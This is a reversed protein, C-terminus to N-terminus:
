IIRYMNIYLIYPYVYLSGWRTPEPVSAARWRRSCSPTPWIMSTSRGVWASRPMGDYSDDTFSVLVDTWPLSSPHLGERRNPHTKLADSHGHGCLSRAHM